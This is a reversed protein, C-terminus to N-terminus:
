IEVQKNPTFYRLKIVFGCALLITCIVQLLFFVRVTLNVKIYCNEVTTIQTDDEDSNVSCEYYKMAAASELFLVLWVRKVM